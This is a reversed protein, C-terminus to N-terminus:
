NHAECTSGSTALQIWIDEHVGRSDVSTQPSLVCLEACDECVHIHEEPAPDVILCGPRSVSVAGTVTAGTKLPLASRRQKTVELQCPAFAKEIGTNMPVLPVSRNAVAAIDWTAWVMELQTKM